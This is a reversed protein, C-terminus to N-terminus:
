PQDQLTTLSHLLGRQARALDRSAADIAVLDPIDDDHIDNVARLARAVLSLSDRVVGNLAERIDDNYAERERTQDAHLGVAQREERLREELTAITERLLATERELGDRVARAEKLEIFSGVADLVASAAELALLAPNTSAAARRVGARVGHQAALRAAQGVFRLAHRPARSM